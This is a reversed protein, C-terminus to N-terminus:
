LIFIYVFIAKILLFVNAFVFCTHWLAKLCLVKFVIIIYLIISEKPMIIIAPIIKLRNLIPSISASVMLAAILTDTILIKKGAKHIFVM